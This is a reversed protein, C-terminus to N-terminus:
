ARFARHTNAPTERMTVATLVRRVMKRLGPFPVSTSYPWFFVLSFAESVDASTEPAKTRQEPGHPPPSFTQPKAANKINGVRGGGGGYPDGDGAVRGDDISGDRVGGYPGGGM